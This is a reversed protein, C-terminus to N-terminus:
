LPRPMNKLLNYINKALGITPRPMCPAIRGFPCCTSIQCYNVGFRLTSRVIALSNSHPNQPPSTIALRGSIMPAVFLALFDGANFSTGLIIRIHNEHVFTQNFIPISPPRPLWFSGTTTNLTWDAHLVASGTFPLRRVTSDSKQSTTTFSSHFLIRPVVPILVVILFRLLWQYKPIRRAQTQAKEDASVHTRHSLSFRSRQM